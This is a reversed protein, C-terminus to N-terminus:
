YEFVVRGRGRGVRGALEVDLAIRVHRNRGLDVPLEGVLDIGAPEERTRPEGRHTLKTGSQSHVGVRDARDVSPQGIAAVDRTSVPRARMDRVPRRLLAARLVEGPDDGLHDPASGLGSERGVLDRRSGKGRRRFPLPRARQDLHEERLARVGVRAVVGLPQVLGEVAPDLDLARQEVVERVPQVPEVVVEDRRRREMGVLGLREDVAPDRDDRHEDTRAVDLEDVLDRANGAPDRTPSTQAESRPVSFM